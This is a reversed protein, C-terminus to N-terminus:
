FHTLISYQAIPNISMENRLSFYIPYLGYEIAKIVATSGRYIVYNSEDLDKELTSISFKVNENLSLLKKYKEELREVSILPHFRVIYSM